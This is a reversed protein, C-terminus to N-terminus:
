TSEVDCEGEKDTIQETPPCEHLCTEVAYLYMDRLELHDPGNVFDFPMGQNEREDKFPRYDVVDVWPDIRNTYFRSYFRDRNDDKHFKIGYKKPYLWAQSGPLPAYQSICYDEPRMERVFNITDEVSEWTEGPAGVILSAKVPIGVAKLWRVANRNDEVTTGKNMLDLVRQNGSEIGVNIVRFGAEAMLEAIERDM